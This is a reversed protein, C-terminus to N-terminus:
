RGVRRLNNHVATMKRTLDMLQARKRLSVSEADIWGRLKTLTDVRQPDGMMAFGSAISDLTEPQASYDMISNIVPHNNDDSM